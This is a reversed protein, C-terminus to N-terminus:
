HDENLWKRLVSVLDEPNSDALENIKTVPSIKVPVPTESAAGEVPTGDASVAVVGGSVGGEGPIGGAADIIDSDMDAQNNKVEFAKLAVPKIVTILVLFVLIAFILVQFLNPLHEMVWDVEDDDFPELNSSFRINIVEIKDGRDDDFGTAVKVLSVIKDLDEKSRDSYSVEQTEPDTTYNGDVLIGISMKTVVGSESIHNKITKSIEYNTTQDSKETTAFNGGAGGGGSDGGPINNAVSVDGGGGSSVPTKEREDVSQVSRIVAGEPDYIESNTVVRDFNMELSVQAKVKGSGFSHSLLEEIMGRLRNESGIRMEENKSSAFDMNEESSGIKLPKGKTDVITINKMELGPVSTVVLHSIADIGSKSLRRGGRFKLVVSAKPELREKSFIERQPMVLHVRARSVQDFSTITRSLEGELARILKVNQSFNTAGISDEKDFIEYGVISGANPLGSQALALRTSAVESKHVKITSGDFMAKYIIKRTDLDEAIKASDQLDLDTYLVAFEDEGVKSLFLIFMIISALITVAIAALKAPSMEKLFQILVQM